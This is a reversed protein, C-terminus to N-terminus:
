KLGLVMLEKQLEIIRLDFNERINLLPFTSEDKGSSGVDDYGLDLLDNTDSNFEHESYFLILNDDVNKFSVPISASIDIKLANIKDMWLKLDTEVFDDEIRAKNLKEILKQAETRIRQTKDIMIEKLKKRANDAIQHVKGISKKGM